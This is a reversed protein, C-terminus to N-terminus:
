AGLLNELDVFDRCLVSRGEDRLQANRGGIAITASASVGKEITQLERELQKASLSTVSLILLEARTHNMAYVVEEAPLDAGLYVVRWGHMIALMAATLAGLDHEETAPTAVVVTRGSVSAPYLRMISVLLNRMISSCAHEHAIRLTGAEWRRGVEALTPTIVERVFERPETALAVQSLLREAEDLRLAEIDQLFSARIEAFRGSAGQMEGRSFASAMKQLDQDSLGAISGISHGAEVLRRLVRLRAVDSDSYLRGGADTRGPVVAAYRKEWVRLAHTSLGTMRAVMGVRYKGVSQENTAM